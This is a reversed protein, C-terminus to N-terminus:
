SFLYTIKAGRPNAEPSLLSAGLPLSKLGVGAPTYLSAEGVM